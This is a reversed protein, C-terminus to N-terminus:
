GEGKELADKLQQMPAEAEYGDENGYLARSVESSIRVVFRALRRQKRLRNFAQGQMSKLSNKRISKL